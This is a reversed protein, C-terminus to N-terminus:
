VKSKVTDPREPDFIENAWVAAVLEEDGVNTIDHSWGPISEVVEPKDGSTTLEHVENTVVQRFKFRAKGRIVLFKEVKSHHYHGGRTVGPHATLVSFQGSDLTKLFEVFVGRSDSHGPIEYSFESAPLYSVYTAYLAHVLGDGVRELVLDDRVRRFAEIEEVLEGVTTSYVPTVQGQEIGEHASYIFNILEKVVDDIYVLKLAAKPDDVRVPLGRAINYCFTAVASNYNPRCWKGFVNPMRYIAVPAGTEKAYNALHQEAVRKSAGYPNDLEAQISSAFAVPIQRDLERLRNCLWETYDANGAVFESDKEPRNVGALHIVADAEAMLKLAEHPRTERVVPLVENAANERLAVSLNKGIFGNAGTILIKM